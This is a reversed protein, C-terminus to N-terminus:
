IQMIIGNITTVGLGAIGLCYTYTGAGTGPCDIIYDGNNALLARLEAATSMISQGKYIGFTSSGYQDRVDCCPQDHNNNIDGGGFLATTEHSPRTLLPSFGGSYLPGYESKSRLNFVSNRWFYLNGGLLEQAGTM